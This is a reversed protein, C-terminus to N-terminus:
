FLEMGKSGLFIRVERKVFFRVNNLFFFLLAAAALKLILEEVEEAPTFVVLLCGFSQFVSTILIAPVVWPRTARLGFYIVSWVAVNILIEIGLNPDLSEIAPAAIIGLIGLVGLCAFALYVRRIRRAIVEIKPKNPEGTTSTIVM